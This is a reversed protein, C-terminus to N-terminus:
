VRAWAKSACNSGMILRFEREGVRNVVAAMATAERKRFRSEAIPSVSPVRINSVESTSLLPNYIHSHYVHVGVSRETRTGADLINLRDEGRFFYLPLPIFFTM